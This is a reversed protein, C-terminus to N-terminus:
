RVFKPYIAQFLGLPMLICYIDLQPREKDALLTGTQAGAVSRPYSAQELLRHGAEGTWGNLQALRECDTIGHM